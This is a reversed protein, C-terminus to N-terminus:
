SKNAKIVISQSKVDVNRLGKIFLFLPAFM